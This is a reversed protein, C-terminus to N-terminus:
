SATDLCTKLEALGRHLWTRITNVPKEFRRALEERSYGEYYALLICTRAPEEIEDLCHRLAAIDMFETEADCLEAIRAPWNMEQRRPEPPSFSKRRLMDIAQKRAISSLWATPAGAEPSYGDAGRWIRLFVDQLIDEALARDRIIRLIAGFLKPAARDYLRRFAVSDESAVAAILRALEVQDPKQLDAEPEHAIM